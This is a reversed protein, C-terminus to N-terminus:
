VGAHVSAVLLGLILLFLTGTDARLRCGSASSSAPSTVSSGSGSSSTVTPNPPNTPDAKGGQLGVDLTDLASQRQNQVWEQVLEQSEYAKLDPLNSGLLGRVDDVTLALVVPPNLSVFTDMDMNVNSNVLSKIYDESAGGLYPQMLKYESISVTSRTTTEGFAERAITFLAQKKELTCSSPTVSARRLDHPSISRLVSADLTCLNDGGIANLTTSDLTNNDHDLYKSIIEKAINPDLPGNFADMLSSLTDILTITWLSIDASTAQRSAPGLLGVQDEPITSHNAYAERLKELVVKLYDDQDVKDMIAALNDRLTAASLCCNFQNIDDYDFPFTEDSITVQTIEGVTCENAVSRKAKNKNSMRIERKLSKLKQRDVGNKKVAKLFDKLFSRKTKKDFNKYFNSTLFLPLIGLDELTAKTWTSPAGFPTNGSQLLTEVAAVQDATLDSCHQLRDLISSDSTNIYSGDLICCMNGLVSIDEKTLSTSTINLCNKANTFLADRKYSLVTSFVSFDAESLQEFYSKCSAAPVRSYDYYLLVDQPYLDFREVDPENKIHNYMCTLQTEELIVKNNGKRRCAKILKNVQLKSFDRVTTCTFGQLLSSSLNNPSGLLTTASEKAVDEFFLEVQKRKWKKSNLKTIINKNSSLGLLLSPPIETALNDPVNEIIVDSSSNVSVIQLVFIQQIIPPATMLHSLFLVNQSATILESGSINIFTNAPVGTVLSGLMLLSSANNIQMLGSSILLLIIAKAQGENWGSLSGLIDLSLLLDEPKIAQIQGQSIGTSEDGLAAIVSADITNGFNDALASAVQPDLNTCLNTLNHLVIVSEEPSLQSFAMGPVFCRFGLPLLIPNFNNDQRYLLETYYSTVNVPTITQNFIAINRLDVTFVQLVEASGFTFLLDDLNIFEFFPGIYDAFWATSNLEPNSADYCRPVTESNLYTTITDYVDRRVFNVDVYSFNGLVSVLKQFAICTANYTENSRLLDKTLFGLYNHLRQDFWADVESRSTNSLAMPWLCPLMPKRLGEPLTEMELFAPTLHYNGFISCLKTDDDAIDPLRLYNGLDSPSMSNVLQTMRDEPMLSLFTTLKPLQFGMFWSQLFEYYSQDSVYCRLPLPEKLAQVIHKHIEKQTVNSLSSIFMNLDTVGEQELSCSRGALIEFFPSVHQHSLEVLLPQLRNRLWVLVVSDKVSSHSLNARDFVVELMASRVPAEFEDEHGLISPSFDDFFNHLFADPVYEMVMAVQAPTTLQGPTSAVDALQRITLQPLAEMASFSSHLTQLESFLVLHSFAGLNQQLWEGSNNSHSSCSPDATDNRTLFPKIFRTLVATQVIISMNPTVHSLTQVIQQYTNCTLNKTTLCSLFDPSVAPLFPRLRHNFWINIFAPDNVYTNPFSDLRVEGIADLIMSAAPNRPDFMMNTLLDLSENLVHSTKSLLLKWVPTSGSSNASRNCKFIMTLDQATLVVLSACAFEEVAFDCFRGELTNNDLHLQLATSNVGMCIETENSSTVICEGSYIVCGPPILESLNMKNNTIFSAVNLPVEVLALDLRAFLTKYASCSLNRNFGEELRKHLLALFEPIKKQEEPSDTMHDFLANIIVDQEPLAPLQLLLLQVRQTTTLLPLAELPNFEPNLQLIEQLSLYQSFPGVNDMLWETSSNSGSLCGPGATDNRTLFPKIFHTLVATQVIISMNPTVHSLTQVIQQYTNCTLNKTTLCSLFDPSVAPLFPRLRHNFWINIFAPDNVYTNPFSDLRVEGIADLIMSAAPNRPDFMMNTLLDLSENLVHSTKSLLLKWVPTSGSSNVSRNCKFIMTLDQATLVVLSACAFEEVAFDCFRGELTNNDLHLQLATSNVGMCIETENSSTVICEGSYIVCGPPILKSLKMKNDTIFSAVNLPVEVLALDLRAFLTKYASCSFNRNFGEELRKHLLALFEPIKKQEEPSDTMHDFLANIIVDQEPLAPLQLLLLQVRQTTTLLPLAELPNFEPNLQLIEQLSLYQSFPGVNDMLWETSSNSGSLCGPGSHPRSLFSTIFEWLIVMHQWEAISNFNQQFVQLIQQYSQCSINRYSLCRLFSRSASPLFHRLRASFWENIVSSNRLQEDSLLALRIEGVVDLIAAASPLIETIPEDALIDLAPDLIANHNTLVIKWLVVSHTSNGPLNCSLLSALQNATFNPLHACAYEELTFNCPVELSTDLYSQLEYSNIGKCIDTANIINLQCRINDPVCDLPANRILIDVQARIHPELDPPVSVMIRQLREFIAKYTTCPPNEQIALPVMAQLVELLRRDGPSEQLFNFVEEIVMEKEPPTRLPLIIMQAMQRPSLLVLVDLGSFYPNLYYFDKVQAVQLFSGFNKLLWETSNNASFCVDSTNHRQMFRYIFSSYINQHYVSDPHWYSMHKSLLAVITQYAPCSFNKNSLCLLVDRPIHPLLPMLKIYFWMTIFNPDELNERISNAEEFIHRFDYAVETFNAIAFEKILLNLRETLELILRMTNEESMTLNSKAACHMIHAVNEVADTMGCPNGNLTISCVDQIEPPENDIHHDMQYVYYFTLMLHHSRLSQDDKSFRKLVPMVVREYWDEMRTTNFEPTEVDVPPPPPHKPKYVSAMEALTWNLLFQTMTSGRIESVNRQKTFWVFDHVFSSIPKVAMVIGRMVERFSNHPSAPLDPSDNPRPLHPYGPGTWNHNGGYSGAPGETMLSHFVLHLSDNSLGAVLPSLMLQAKQVPSLLHLVELGSFIININSFDNMRAMVRFAGFNKMLWDESSENPHVCGAVGKGSLFPYMFFSYIWKQREPNMESFHHSLEKVVIQYTSCSFNKTSLCALFHRNISKLLPKMKVKLWMEVLAENQFPDAKPNLMLATRLRFLPVGSASSRMFTFVDMAAELMGKLNRM